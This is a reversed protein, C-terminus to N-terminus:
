SQTVVPQRFLPEESLQSDANRHCWVTRSPTEFWWGWSQKSLLTNPCLDFFVYFNRTVQRQARFEGPVPSNGPWIALLASFTEMQHRWWPWDTIAKALVPIWARCDLASQRACIDCQWLSTYYYTDNRRLAGCTWQNPSIGFFVGWM